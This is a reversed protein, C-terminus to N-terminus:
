KINLLGISKLLLISLLVPAIYKVMIIYMKKRGFKCDTKEAEEIVFKPGVKWGILLCTGIAVIPMLLQNSVYDM